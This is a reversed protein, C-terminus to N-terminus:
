VALACGLTLQVRVVALAEGELSADERVLAEPAAGRSSSGQLKYQRAAQETLHAAQVGARSAARHKGPVLSGTTSGNRMDSPLLLVSGAM